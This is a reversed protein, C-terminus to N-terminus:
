IKIHRCLNSSLSCVSFASTQKNLDTSWLALFSIPIQIINITFEVYSRDRKMEVLGWPLALLEIKILKKDLFGITKSVRTLIKIKM